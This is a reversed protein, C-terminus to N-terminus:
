SKSRLSDTLVNSKIQLAILDKKMRNLMHNFQCQHLMEFDHQENVSTDKALAANIESDAGHTTKEM